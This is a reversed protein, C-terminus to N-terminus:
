AVCSMSKKCERAMHRQKFLAFSVTDSLAVNDAGFAPFSVFGLLDKGSSYTLILCTRYQEVAEDLRMEKEELLVGLRCLITCQWVTLETTLAPRYRKQAHKLALVWVAEAQQYLLQSEFAVALLCLAEVKTLQLSGFTEM